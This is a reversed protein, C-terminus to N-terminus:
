DKDNRKEQVRQMLAAVAAEDEPYLGEQAIFGPTGRAFESWIPIERLDENCAHKEFLGPESSFELMVWDSLTNGYCIIDTQMISFVPNGTEVPEVALARHGLLPILRPWSAFDEEFVALRQSADDPREGWRSLWFLSGTIDACIGDFVQERFRQVEDPNHIWGFIQKDPDRTNAALYRLDDPLVFGLAAEVQNLDAESAGPKGFVPPAIERGMNRSLNACRWALVTNANEFVANSFGFPQTM